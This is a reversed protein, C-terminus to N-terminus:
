FPVTQHPNTSRPTSTSPTDGIAENLLKWGETAIGATKAMTARFHSLERELEDFAPFIQQRIARGRDTFLLYSGVAGVIAGITTVVWAQERETVAAEKRVRRAPSAECAEEV